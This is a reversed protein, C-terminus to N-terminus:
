WDAGIPAAATSNKGLRLLPTVREFSLDLAPIVILASAQTRAENM